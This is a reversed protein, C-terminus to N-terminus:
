MKYKGFIEDPLNALVLERVQLLGIEQASTVLMRQGLGSYQDPALENWDTRRALRLAGDEAQAVRRGYAHASASARCAGRRAAVAGLWPACSPM